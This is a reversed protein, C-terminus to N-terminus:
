TCQSNTDVLYRCMRNAFIEEKLVKVGISRTRTLTKPAETAGCLYKNGFSCTWAYISSYVHHTIEVELRHVVTLNPIQIGDNNYPDCHLIVCNRITFIHFM